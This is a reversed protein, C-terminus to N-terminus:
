LKRLSQEVFLNV